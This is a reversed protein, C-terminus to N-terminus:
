PTPRPRRFSRGSEPWSCPRVAASRLVAAVPRGQTVHARPPEPPRAITRVPACSESPHPRPADRLTCAVAPPARESAVATCRRRVIRYSRLEFRSDVVPPHEIHISPEPASKARARHHRGRGRHCDSRERRAGGCEAGHRRHGGARGLWQLEGVEVVVAEERGRRLDVDAVGDAERDVAEVGDREEPPWAAGGSIMGELVRTAPLSSASPLANQNLPLGLWSILGTTAAGAPLM